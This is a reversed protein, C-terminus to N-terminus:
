NENRKENYEKVKQFTEDIFIALAINGKKNLHGIKNIRNQKEM